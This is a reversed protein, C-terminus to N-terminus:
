QAGGKVPAVGGETLFAQMESTSIKIKEMKDIVSFDIDKHKSKFQAEVDSNFGKGALALEDGSAGVQAQEQGAKLVIKKASLASSHLWGATGGSLSVKNWAGRTELVTVRDGYALSGVIKGAFAPTERVPADKVQVSMMNDQASFASVAVLGCFVAALVLKIQSM